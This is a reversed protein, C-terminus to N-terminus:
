FNDKYYGIRCGREWLEVGKDQNCDRCAFVLNGADTEHGGIALPVFHDVVCQLRKGRWIQNHARGCYVCKYSDRRAIAHRLEKPIAVRPRADPYRARSQRAQALAIEKKEARLYEPCQCANQNSLAPCINIQQGYSTMPLHDAFIGKKPMMEISAYGATFLVFRNPPDLYGIDLLYRSYSCRWCKFALRCSPLELM